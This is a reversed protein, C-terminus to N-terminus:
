SIDYKYLLLIVMMIDASQVELLTNRTLQYRLSPDNQHWLYFDRTMVTVNFYERLVKEVVEINTDSRSGGGYRYTFLLKPKYGSVGYAQNKTKGYEYKKVPINYLQLIQKKVNRWFNFYFDNNGWRGKHSFHMTDWLGYEYKPKPKPAKPDPFPDTLIDQIPVSISSFCHTGQLAGFYNEFNM